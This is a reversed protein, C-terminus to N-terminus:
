DWLWRPDYDVNYKELFALFEEKFTTRKHHERQGAIYGVAHDLQSQGISFAGYGAQWAFGACRPAKTKMWRSSGSKVKQALESVAMSRALSVIAHLHNETGGVALAPSKLKRCIGGVYAHLEQVIGTAICNERNKTSFIIHILIRSYSTPM